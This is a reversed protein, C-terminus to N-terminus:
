ALKLPPSSERKREVAGRWSEREVVLVRAAYHIMMTFAVKSQWALINEWRTVLTGRWRWGGPRSFWWRTYITSFPDLLFKLSQDATGSTFLFPV